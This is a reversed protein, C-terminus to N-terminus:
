VSCVFYVVEKWEWSCEMRIKTYTNEFRRKRVKITV